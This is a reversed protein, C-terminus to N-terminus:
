GNDGEKELKVRQSKDIGRAKQYHSLGCATSIYGTVLCMWRQSHQAAAGQRAARLLTGTEVNKKGQIEGLRQIHGTEKNKNGAIQGGIVKVKKDFLGTGREKMTTVAKKHAGERWPQEESFIGVKKERQTSVGKRRAEGSPQGGCAENLCDPHNLFPRILRREVEEAEGRTAFWELIQIECEYTEWVWKHTCPSGYYPKGNDTHVGFYFWPLGPFSIKYTYHKLSTGM